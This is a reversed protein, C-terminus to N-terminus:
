LVGDIMIPTGHLYYSPNIDPFQQTLSTDVGPRTWAVGLRGVTDRNIQSLPSYRDFSKSGGFNRWEGSHNDSREDGALAVDATMWCLAQLVAWGVLVASIRRMGCM